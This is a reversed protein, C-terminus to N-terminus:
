PLEYRVHLNYLTESDAPPNPINPDSYVSSVRLYHTGAVQTTYRVAENLNPGDSYCRNAGANVCAREETPDVIELLLDGQMHQIEAIITAGVPAELTFWDEDGAGGVGPELTCLTISNIQYPTTTATAVVTSATALDNNPEFRDISCNFLPSVDSVLIYPSGAGLGTNTVQLVAFAVGFGPVSVAIEKADFGRGATPPGLMTGNVDFLALDLTTLADVYHIRLVHRYGAELSLRFHDQDFGCLTLDDARLPAFGLGVADAVTNGLMALDYVDPECAGITQKDLRLEYSSQQDADRGRVRLLHEGAVSARHALFERSSVGVSSRVAATNNPDRGPEYLYLELDAESGFGIEARVTEGLELPVRFFDQDGACISLGDVLPGTDAPSSPASLPDDNPEFIDDSCLPGGEDRVSATFTYVNSDGRHGVVRFYHDGAYSSTFRLSENDTVSASRLLAQSSGARHYELDLDGLAHRFELGVDITQGVEINRLVLWDLDGPCVRGDAPVDSRITAAASLSDNEEFADDECATGPDRAVVLQYSPPARAPLALFVKLLVTLSTGADIEVRENDTVTRSEDLLTAGDELFLQLEIDADAHRFRADLTLYTGAPVEIRYWDVDGPCLKLEDHRDIEPDLLVALTSLNNPEQLDNLCDPIRRVCIPVPLSRDCFDSESCDLDTECETPPAQCSFTRPDCIEPAVCVVCQVGSTSPCDSLENACRVNSECRGLSPNCFLGPGCDDNNSCQACRGLIDCFEGTRCAPMQGTPLCEKSPVRCSLGEGECRNSASCPECEGTLQSCTRSVLDCIEGEECFPDGYCGPNDVCKNAGRDCIQGAPCQARRACDRASSTDLCRGLLSSCFEGFACPRLADCEDAFPERFVCAFAETDCRKRPDKAECEPDTTCELGPLCEGAPTCKEGAACDENKTCAAPVPTDDGCGPAFVGMCLLPLLLRLPRLPATMM